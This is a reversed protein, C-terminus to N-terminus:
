CHIDDLPFIAGEDLEAEIDVCMVAIRRLQIQLTSYRGSIQLSDYWSYASSLMDV